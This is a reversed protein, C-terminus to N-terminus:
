HAYRPKHKHRFSLNAKLLDYILSTSHAKLPVIFLVLAVNKFFGSIFIVPYQSYESTWECLIM